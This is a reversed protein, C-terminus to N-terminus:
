GLFDTRAREIVLSRIAVNAPQYRFRSLKARVEKPLEKTSSRGGFTM